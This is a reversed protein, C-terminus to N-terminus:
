GKLGLNWLNRPEAGDQIGNAKILNAVGDIRNPNIAVFGAGRDTCEGSCRKVTEPTSRPALSKMLPARDTERHRDESVSSHFLGYHQKELFYVDGKRFKEAQISKPVKEKKAKM